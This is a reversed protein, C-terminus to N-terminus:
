EWHSLRKLGGLLSTTFAQFVIQLQAFERDEAQCFVTYTARDTRICRVSATSTLDLCYFNLDYGIMQRGAVTEQIEERELEEYEAKMADVAAEDLFEERRFTESVVILGGPFFAAARLARIDAGVVGAGVVANVAVGVGIFAAGVRCEFGVVLM